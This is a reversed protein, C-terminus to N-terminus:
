KANAGVAEEYQFQDGDWQIRRWNGSTTFVDQWKVAVDGSIRFAGDSWYVYTLGTPPLVDISVQAGVQAAVTILYTRTQRQADLSVVQPAVLSRVLRM